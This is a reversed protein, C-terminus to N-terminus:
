RARVAQEIHATHHRGHWEYWLVAEDISVHGWKPHDFPRRCADDSLARMFAVWRRHLAELLALSMEVPGSQAEPSEAWRAEQYALIRPADETAALKMRVYANIHSDPLHHVVQRITWGGPRYRTELAQEPLGAVLARVRAPTEAITDILRSRDRSSLAATLRPMPGIPYRLPDLPATDAM